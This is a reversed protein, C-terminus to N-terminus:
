DCPLQVHFVSGQGIKSQVSITGGHEHITTFVQTLGLGTGESKTTLFPTGLKKLLDESIGVGTDCIKINIFGAEYYHDIKIDGKDIISELANKILNFFAKLLLNRKGVVIRESDSFNLETNVNYLREQFLFLLSDLEKCLEIPVLPEEFLDPKSVNLLNQLTALAKDLESEMIDLYFHPQSEKLLQLFGKVSTLPNKIEHAISASIQGISALKGQDNLLKEAKKRHTIDQVIVQAFIMDAVYCPATRLEVEIVEGDIRFMKTELLELTERKELVRRLRDQCIEHIDPPLFVCFNKYLIDEPSSVKLLDLCARNCYYIKGGDGVIWIANLSNNVLQHFDIDVSEIKLQM